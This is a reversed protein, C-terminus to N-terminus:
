AHDKWRGYHAIALGLGIAVLAVVTWCVISVRADFPDADDPLAGVVIAGAAGSVGGLFGALKDGALGGAAVGESERHIVFIEVTRALAILPLFLVVSFILGGAFGFTLQCVFPGGLRSATAGAAGGLMASWLSVLTTLLDGRPFTNM